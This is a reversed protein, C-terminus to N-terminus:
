RLSIQRGSYVMGGIITGEIRYGGWDEKRQKERRFDTLNKM